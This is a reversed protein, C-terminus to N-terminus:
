PQTGLTWYLFILLLSLLAYFAIPKGLGSKEPIAKAGGAKGSADPKGEGLKKGNAKLVKWVIVAIWALFLMGLIVILQFYVRGAVFAKVVNLQGPAFFYYVLASLVSLVPFVCLERTFRTYALGPILLSLITYLLLAAACVLFLVSLVDVLSFLQSLM